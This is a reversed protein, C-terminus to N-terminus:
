RNEQGGQQGPNNGRTGTGGLEDDELGRKETGQKGGFEDDQQHRGPSQQGPQRGQEGGQGGLNKDLDDKKMRDDAM